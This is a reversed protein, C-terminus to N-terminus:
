DATSTIDLSDAVVELINSSQRQWKAKTASDALTANIGNLMFQRLEGAHCDLNQHMFQWAHLTPTSSTSHSNAVPYLAYGQELLAAVAQEREVQRNDVLAVTAPSIPAFTMIRGQERLRRPLADFAEAGKYLVYAHSFRDSSILAKIDQESAPDMDVADLTIGFGLQRCHDLLEDSLLRRTHMSMAIGAVCEPRHSLLQERVDTLQHEIGELSYLVRSEIGTDDQAASMATFVSDLAESLSFRTQNIYFLPNFRFENYFVGQEAAKVLYDYTIQYLHAPWAILQEVLYRRQKLGLHFYEQYTIPRHQESSRLARQAQLSAFTDANITELLNQDLEVKPIMCLLEQAETTLQLADFTYQSDKQLLAM